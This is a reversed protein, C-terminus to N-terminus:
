DTIYTTTSGDYANTSSVFSVSIPTAGPNFISVTGTGDTATAASTVTTSATNSVWTTRSTVYGAPTYYVVSGSPGNGAPITSTFTTTGTPGEDTASTQTVYPYPTNIYVTGVAGVTSGASSVDTTTATAGPGGDYGRYETRYPRPVSVIITGPPATSAAIVKTITDAPVPSPGADYGVITM